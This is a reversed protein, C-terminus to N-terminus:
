IYENIDQFLFLLTEYQTSIPKEMKLTLNQNKKLLCLKPLMLPYELPFHLVPYCEEQNKQM